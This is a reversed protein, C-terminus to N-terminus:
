LITNNITERVGRNAFAEDWRKTEFFPYSPCTFVETVAGFVSCVVCRSRQGINIKPNTPKEKEKKKNEKSNPNPPKVNTYSKYFLSSPHDPGCARYAATVQL